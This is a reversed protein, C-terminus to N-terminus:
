LRPLLQSTCQVQTNLGADATCVIESLIRTYPLSFKECDVKAVQKGLTHFLTNARGHVAMDGAHCAALLLWGHVYEQM